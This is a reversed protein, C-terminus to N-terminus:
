CSVPLPHFKEHKIIKPKEPKKRSRQYHVSMLLYLTVLRSFGSGSRKRFYISFGSESEASYFCTHQKLVSLTLLDHGWKKSVYYRTTECCVYFHTSLVRIVHTTVVCMIYTTCEKGFWRAVVVQTTTVRVIQFNM